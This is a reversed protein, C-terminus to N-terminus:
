SPVAGVRRPRVACSCRRTSVPGAVRDRVGHRNGWERSQGVERPDGGRPARRWSFPVNLRKCVKRLGNDSLGYKACLQTLPMSWVEEYLEERKITQWM